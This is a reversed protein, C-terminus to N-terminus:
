ADGRSSAQALGNELVKETYERATLQALEDDLVDKSQPDVLSTIGAAIASRATLQAFDEVDVEHERSVVSRKTAGATSGGHGGRGERVAREVGLGIFDRASLQGLEVEKQPPPPLVAELGAAIAARASLQGLSIELDNVSSQAASELGRTIYDRASMNGLTLLAKETSEAASPGAGGSSAKELGRAIADRASLDGLAV